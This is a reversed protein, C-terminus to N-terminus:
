PVKNSSLVTHFENQDSNMNMIYPCPYLCQRLYQLNKRSYKYVFVVFITSFIQQVILFYLFIQLIQRFRTDLFLHQIGFFPLFSSIQRSTQQIQLRSTYYGSIVFIQQLYRSYNDVVLITSKFLLYLLSFHCIGVVFIQQLQQCCTYYVSTFILTNTFRSYKDVVFITSQISYNYITYYLTKKMKRSKAMKKNKTKKTQKWIKGMGCVSKIWKVTVIDYTKSDIEM